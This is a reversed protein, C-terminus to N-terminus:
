PLGQIHIPNKSIRLTEINRLFESSCIEHCLKANLQSNGIDLTDVRLLEPVRLAGAVFQGMTNLENLRLKRITPMESFLLSVASLRRAVNAGISELFGRRFQFEAIRSQKLPRAWLKRNGNMLVKQREQLECWPEGTSFDSPPGLEALRCQIRIFEARALYNHEELWDAFVLRPGDDEPSACIEEILAQRTNVM